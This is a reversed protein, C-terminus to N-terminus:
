IIGEEKLIGVFCDVIEEDYLVGKFTNLEEVTETPSLGKRYPRDTTMADFVDAISIIRAELLIQSGKLGYPYGSGDIREHHQEIIDAMNKFYTNKVLEAGDSPHKKIFEFEEETLKGPKNLIKDPIYVKGLDHFLASFVLIEIRDKPLNLKNGIKIVYEKVRLVHKRTYHDKEEIKLEIELLEKIATSLFHFQPHTSFYLLMVDTITTFQITEKLHHVYLYDGNKLLSLVNNKNVELKGELIYFFEMTEDIDDPHIFVIKDAKIMQVMVEAGDGKALLRLEGSLQVFKDIYKDVDGIFFGDEMTEEQYMANKEAHNNCM